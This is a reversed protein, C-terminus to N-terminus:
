PVRETLARRYNDLTLSQKINGRPAAAILRLTLAVAEAQSDVAPDRLLITNLLYTRCAHRMARFLAAEDRLTAPADPAALIRQYLGSPGGQGFLATIARREAADDVARYANYATEETGTPTIGRLLTGLFQDETLPALVHQRASDRQLLFVTRLRTPQMPNWVVRDRGFVHEADLMARANDFAALRTLEELVAPTVGAAGGAVAEAAARLSARRQDVLEASVSPVNEAPSRLLAAAALPFSEVLNTRLYFVKESTYAYATPPERLDLGALDGEIEEGSLCYGSFRGQLPRGEMLAAVADAGAVVRDEITLRTPAVPEGDPGPVAYRVYVWDDSHFRADAHDMLGYSSTSKGTGTPAVYLIGDGGLEVCAGHVSHIGREEALLRGVAGLVWSKLQGYYATNFFLVINRSRSYYASAPRDPVGTLAYALLQPRATPVQGTRERWEEPTFWNVGFFTSLHPSNTLARVRVGHVIVDHQVLASGLAHAYRDAWDLLEDREAPRQDLTKDHTPTRGKLRTIINTAAGRGIPAGM